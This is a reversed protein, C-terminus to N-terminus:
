QSRIVNLKHMLYLEKNLPDVMAKKRRNGLGLLDKKYGYLKTYFIGKGGTYSALRLSYNKSTDVPILGNVVFEHEKVTAEDFTARMKELESIAKGSVFEPVKLEFKYYPELLVTKANNLAEMVVMPTLNRFDSPTSSVSNYQSFNFTVKIDTVEWGLLGQKCTQLVAEEVANQFPKELSGFSIETVYKLGEGRRIPEVKIGVGASFPIGNNYMPCVALGVGRPTEKYITATDLFEVEINYEDKLLAKLIEMQIEGFLNIHIENEIGDSSVELLPDEEALLTLATFLKSNDYKNAPMVRTTLTPRAISVVKFKDCQSGIIDNIQLDKHGYLVAIDGASVKSAEILKGNKLLNIRKVKEVTNKTEIKITDRLSIEGQFLRIFVKKDNISERQIKFVVGSLGKSEDGQSLPIFKPISDLLEKIGLGLLASGFLVPYLLGKKAYFSVKKEIAEKSLKLNNVYSELINDDLESLVNIIDEDIVEKGFLEGLSVNKSGEDNVRQLSVMNGSLATKIENMLKELNVGIRDVKNIFILTPINLAKLTDFLVRTQSQVGEKASVVLIAGDLVSLSREVESIFDVHGPTDIINIKVDKWDFSTPSSKISIGRKRELEMTDTQTNGSDVRGVEKIVGCSYLLNETVTTKGADVHAVIGINIKKM